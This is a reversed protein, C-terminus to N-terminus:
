CKELLFWTIDDQPFNPDRRYRFGYSVLRMDAHRDLFEGAFDRKFLRDAHGRYPLALPTPNYYEAICVYRRTLRHAVDYATPLREPSIHILVGKVLVMDHPEVQAPPALLSGHHVDLGQIERLKAVARENIEVAGLRAHPLVNRMALLNLGLNAGLELVSSVGRTHGIVESLLSTNSAIWAEGTNRDTYADGFEGAWFHEQETSYPM